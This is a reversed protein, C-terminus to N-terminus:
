LILIRVQKYLVCTCQESATCPGLCECGKYQIQFNEVTCGPGPELSTIQEYSMEADKVPSHSNDIMEMYRYFM